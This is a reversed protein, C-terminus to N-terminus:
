NSGEVCEGDGFMAKAAADWVTEQRLYNDVTFFRRCDAAEYVFQLPTTDDGRGYANRLNFGAYNLSLSLNNPDPVVTENWRKWGATSLM